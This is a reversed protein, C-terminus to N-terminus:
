RTLARKVEDSLPLKGPRDYPTTNCDALLTAKIRAILREREAKREWLKQLATRRKQLRSLHRDTTM